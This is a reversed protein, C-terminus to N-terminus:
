FEYENGCNNCHAIAIYSVQSQGSFEEFDSKKLGIYCMVHGCKECNYEATVESDIRNYHYEYGESSIYYAALESEIPSSVIPLKVTNQHETTNNVNTKM